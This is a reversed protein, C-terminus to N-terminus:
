APAEPWSAASWKARRPSDTPGRTFSIFNGVINGMQSKNSNIYSDTKHTHTSFIVLKDRPQKAQGSAWQDAKYSALKGARWSALRRAQWGALKGAQRFTGESRWQQVNNSM